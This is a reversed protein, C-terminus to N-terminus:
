FFFSVSSSSPKEFLRYLYFNGDQWKQSTMNLIYLTYGTESYAKVLRYSYHSDPANVYDDLPTASSCALMLSLLGVIKLM